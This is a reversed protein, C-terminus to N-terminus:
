KKSYNDKAWGSGLLIFGGLSILRKATEKKCEPCIKIPDEKISQDEEWGHKCSQCQYEYTPM